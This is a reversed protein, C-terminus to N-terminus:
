NFAGATSRAALQSELQRVRVALGKLDGASKENHTILDTLLQKITASGYGLDALLRQAAALAAKQEEGVKEGLKLGGHFADLGALIEPARALEGPEKDTGALRLNREGAKQEATVGWGVALRNTDAAIAAANDDRAKKDAAAQADLDRQRKEHARVKAEENAIDQQNRALADSSKKVAEYKIQWTTPRNGELDAPLSAEREALSKWDKPSKGGLEKKSAAELKAQDAKLTEIQKAAGAAAAAEPSKLEATAARESADANAELEVGLKKREDRQLRIFELKKEEVASAAPASGTIAKVLEQWQKLREGFVATELDEKAKLQDLAGSAERISKTYAEMRDIAANAGDRQADWVAATILAQAQRLEEAKKRAESLYNIFQGVLLITVGLGLTEPRFAARLVTGLGPAARDLEGILRHMERGRVNFIGVSENTEPISKEGLSAIQRNLGAMEEDLGKTSVGTAIAQRKMEELEARAKIAGQLEAQFKILIEYVSDPM